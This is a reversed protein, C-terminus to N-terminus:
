GEYIYMIVVRFQCHCVTVKDRYMFICKSLHVFM